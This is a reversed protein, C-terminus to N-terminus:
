GTGEPSSSEERSPEDALRGVGGEPTGERGAHRTEVFATESHDVIFLACRVTIHDGSRLCAVLADLAGRAASTTGEVHLSGYDGGVVRLEDCVFEIYSVGSETDDRKEDPM